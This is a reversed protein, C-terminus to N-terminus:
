YYHLNTTTVDVPEEDVVTLNRYDPPATVDQYEIVPSSCSTLLLMLLPLATWKM